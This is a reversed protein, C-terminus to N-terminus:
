LVGQLELYIGVYVIVNYCGHIVMPVVVNQTRHYTVALVLAITFVALVAAAVARPPAPSYAPVHVLAFIASSALIAVVADLRETLYKQIVNRYLLEEGIVAGVWTFPIALLIIEAGEERGRRHLAHETTPVDVLWYVVAVIGGVVLIAGIGAAIAVVDRRDPWHLDLYGAGRGSLVAFGVASLVFGTGVGVQRLAFMGLADPTQGILRPLEVALLATAGAVYLGAAGIGGGLLVLRTGTLLRRVPVERHVAVALIVTGAATGLAALQRGGATGPDPGLLAGLAGAVAVLGGAGAAVGVATAPVEGHRGASFALAAIAAGLVTALGTAGTATAAVPMGLLAVVATAGAVLLGVTAVDRDVM